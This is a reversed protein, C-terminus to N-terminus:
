IFGEEKREREREKEKKMEAEAQQRAEEHARDRLAKVEMEHRIREDTDQLTGM